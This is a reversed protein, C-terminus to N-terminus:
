SGCLEGNNYRDLTIALSTAMTRLTAYAGKVKSGLYDGSGTFGISKGSVTTTGDLLRQADIVAAKVAPCTEAGASLNAQAALFQSALGYAADSAKKKGSKTDAKDLISVGTPCDSVSLLGVRQPLLNELIFWGADPGGNKQATRYQNGGSCMNWNKWYGITRPDGGPRRNDVQLKLTEGPEAQVELCRNGLDQPPTDGDNPNYPTVVESAPDFIGDGNTDELWMSTWSPPIGLECVTYPSGPILEAGGFDIKGDVNQVSTVGIGPDPGDLSFTWDMGNTPDESTPPVVEGNTLKLIEVAGRQTNVFTCRVTEGPAVRYTAEGTQLDGSSDDDDCTLDTLDWGLAPNEIASHTGPEVTRSIVQDDVLDQDVVGDFDFTQTSGDPQTQKEVEITGRLTNEFTCTVTEGSGVEITALRGELDVTSDDDDCDIATLDWGEPLTETVPYSGPSLDDRRLEGGDGITDEVAGSFDFTAPAGPPDTSARVVLSGAPPPEGFEFDLRAVENAYVTVDGSEAEFQEPDAVVSWVRPSNDPGLPVKTLRYYGDEDTVDSGGFGSGIFVGELPVPTGSSVDTAYGEITSTATDRGFEVFLDAGCYITVTKTQSYFGAASAFLQVQIPSNDTGVRLGELRYLGNADTFDEKQGGAVRAGEIPEQTFANVVTGAITADECIPILEVDLITVEDAVVNATTQSPWYGDATIGVPADRPVNRFGLQVLDVEYHGDGDTSDSRGSQSGPDVVFQAGEIPEGTIADTVTGAIGAYHRRLIRFDQTSTRDPFVAVTASEPTWYQSGVPFSTDVSVGVDESEDDGLSPSLRTREIFYYGDADTDDCPGIITRCVTAGEVPAGTEEDYVHGEVNGYRPQTRDVVITVQEHEGCADLTTSAEGSWSIDGDQLYASLGYTGPTNHFGLLLRPFSFRGSADTTTFASDYFQLAQVSAGTAPLGTDRDIVQGSISATCKRVLAIDQTLEDGAHVEGLSFWIPPNWSDWYGSRFADPTCGGPHDTIDRCVTKVELHPEVPQNDNGLVFTIDYNGDATSRVPGGLRRTSGLWVELSADEIPTTTPIVINPDEPDPVGEVVRGSVHAPRIPVLSFDLPTIQDCVAVGKPHAEWYSPELRGLLQFEVVSNNEGLSLGDIMYRGEADTIDEQHLSYRVTVGELPDGSEADTVVGEVAGFCVPILGFDVGVEGTADHTIGGGTGRVTLDFAGEELDAGATLTLIM